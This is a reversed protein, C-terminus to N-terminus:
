LWDAHDRIYQEAENLSSEQWEAPNDLESTSGFRAYWKGSDFAFDVENHYNGGNNHRIQSGCNCPEDVSFKKEARL